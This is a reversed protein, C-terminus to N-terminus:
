RIEVNAFANRTSDDIVQWVVEEEKKCERIRWCWTKGSSAPDMDSLILRSGNDGNRKYIEASCQGSAQTLIITVFGTREQEAGARQDLIFISYGLFAKLANRLKAEQSLGDTRDVDGEAQDITNQLPASRIQANRSEVITSPVEVSREPARQVLTAYNNHSRDIAL